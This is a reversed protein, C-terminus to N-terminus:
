LVDPFANLKIWPLYQQTKTYQGGVGTACGDGFSVIGASYFSQSAQDLCFLPGGSDGQCSDEGVIDGACIFNNLDTRRGDSATGVACNGGGNNELVAVRVWKLPVPFRNGKGGDTEDGTGSVVCVDGVSPSQDRLCLSCACSKKMDIPSSLIILAVDNDGTQQDYDPHTVIRAANINVACNTADVGPNFQNFNRNMAGIQAVVSEAKFQVKAGSVFPNLTCHAATLLTRKGIITAGCSATGIGSLDITLKAQWCIQNPLADFGGVITPEVQMRRTMNEASERKRRPFVDETSPQNNNLFAEMLRNVSNVAAESVKDHSENTVAVQMKKGSSLFFDQPIGVGPVGCKKLPNKASAGSQLTQKLRVVQGAAANNGSKGKGEMIDDAFARTLVCILGVLLAFCCSRSLIGM